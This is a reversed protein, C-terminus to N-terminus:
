PSEFLPKAMLLPLQLPGHLAGCDLTALRYGFFGGVAVIVVAVIIISVKKVPFRGAKEFKERKTLQASPKKKPM